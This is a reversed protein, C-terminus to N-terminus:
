LFDNFINKLIYSRQLFFKPYNSTFKPEDNLSLYKNPLGLKEAGDVVEVVM